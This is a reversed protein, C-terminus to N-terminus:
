GQEADGQITGDRGRNGLQERNYLTPPTEPEKDNDIISIKVHLEITFRVNPTM